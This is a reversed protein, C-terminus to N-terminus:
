CGEISWISEYPVRLMWLFTLYRGGILYHVRDSTLIGFSLTWGHYGTVLFRSANSTIAIAAGLLRFNMKLRSLGCYRKDANIM